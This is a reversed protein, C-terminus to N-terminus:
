TQKQPGHEALTFSNFCFNISAPRDSSLAPSIMTFNSVANRLTAIVASFVKRSSQFHVSAAKEFEKTERRGNREHPLDLSHIQLGVIDYDDRHLTMCRLFLQFIDLRHDLALKGAMADDYM